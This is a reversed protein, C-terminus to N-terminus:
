PLMHAKELGALASSHHLDQLRANFPSQGPMPISGYMLFIRHTLCSGAWGYLRSRGLRAARQAGAQASRHGHTSFSACIEIAHARHHHFDQAHLLPM